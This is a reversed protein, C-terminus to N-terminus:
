PEFAEPGRWISGVSRSGGRWSVATQDANQVLEDVRQRTECLSLNASFTVIVSIIETAGRLLADAHLCILVTRGIQLADLFRFEM